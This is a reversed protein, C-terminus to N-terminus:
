DDTFYKLCKENQIDKNLMILVPAKPNIFVSKYKKTYNLRINYIKENYVSENKSDKRSVIIIRGESDRVLM